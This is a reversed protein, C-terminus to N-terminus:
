IRLQADYNASGGESKSSRRVLRAGRFSSGAFIKIRVVFHVAVVGSAASRALSRAYGGAM